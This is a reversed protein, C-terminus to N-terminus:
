VFATVNLPVNVTTQTDTIHLTGSYTSPFGPLFLLAPTTAIITVRWVNTVGIRSFGVIAYTAILPTPGFGVDTVIQSGTETVSFLSTSGPNSFGLTVDAVVRLHQTDIRTLVTTLITGTLNNPTATITPLLCATTAENMGCSLISTCTRTDQLYQLTKKRQFLHKEECDIGYSRLKDMEKYTDLISCINM